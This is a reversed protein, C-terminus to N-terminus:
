AVRRRSGNRREHADLADAVYRGIEATPSGVPVSVNVTYYSVSGAAATPAAAAAPVVALSPAASSSSASSGSPKLTGGFAAQINVVATRTKNIFNSMAADAASTDVTVPVKVWNGQENRRWIQTASLAPDTNANVPVLVKNGQEDLRWQATVAEAQKTDADAPVLVLKGAEDLRWQAMQTTGVATDAHVDATVGAGNDTLTNFLVQYAAQFDGSNYAATFDTRATKPLNAIDVNLDAIKRRAEEQQALKITTEVQHPTLGLFENYGEISDSNLGLQTLQADLEDRYTGAKARVADFDGGSDKLTTALDTGISGSLQQVADLVNRGDETFTTLHGGTAKFDSGADTVAKGLAGMDDVVKAADQHTAFMQASQQSFISTFSDAAEGARDWARLQNNLATNGKVIEEAQAQLSKTTEDAAAKRAAEDKVLTELVQRRVDDTATANATAQTLGDTTQVVEGEVKLRNQLEKVTLGHAAAVEQQAKSAAVAATNGSATADASQMAAQTHVKLEANLTNYEGRVRELGPAVGGTMTTALDEGSVGLDKLHAALKPSDKLMKAIEDAVATFRLDAAGSELDAFATTLDKTAEKTVKEQTSLKTMEAVIKPIIAAAAGLAAIIATPGVFGALSEVLGAGSGAASVMNQALQGIAQGASGAIGSLGALDQASNGVMNGLASGTSVASTGLTEVHTSTETAGAGVEHLAALAQENKVQTEASFISGDLKEGEAAVEKIVPSAKDTATVTVDLNEVTSRGAM